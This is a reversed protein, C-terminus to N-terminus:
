TWRQGTGKSEFLLEAVTIKQKRAERLYKMSRKRDGVNFQAIDRSTLYQLFGERDELRPDQKQWETIVDHTDAFRDSM